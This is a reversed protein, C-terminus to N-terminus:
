TDKKVWERLWWNNAGTKEICKMSELEALIIKFEEFIIKTRNRSARYENLLRYAKKEEIWNRETDCNEWMLKITMAHNEDLDVKLNSWVKNWVILAALPILYPTSIVGAVTLGIEASDVLLRRMNLTINGPKISRGTNNTSNMTILHMMPTQESAEPPQIRCFVEVIQQANELSLESLQEQLTETLEKKM